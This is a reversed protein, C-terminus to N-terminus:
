WRQYLTLLFHSVPIFSPDAELLEINVKLPLEKLLKPHPHCGFLISSQQPSTQHSIISQFM